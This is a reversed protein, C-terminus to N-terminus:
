DQIGDFKELEFQYCAECHGAGFVRDLLKVAVTWGCRYSRSSFMEYRKGALLANFLCSVAVLLVNVYGRM